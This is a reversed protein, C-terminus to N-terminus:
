PAEPGGWPNVGEGLVFGAGTIQALSVYATISYEYEASPLSCLNRIECPGNAPGPLLPFAGAGLTMPSSGIFTETNVESGTITIVQLVYIENVGDGLNNSVGGTTDNIMWPVCGDIKYTNFENNSGSVAGTGNVVGAWGFFHGEDIQNNGPGFVMTYLAPNTTTFEVKYGIAYVGSSHLVQAGQDDVVHALINQANFLRNKARLRLPNVPDLGYYFADVGVVGEFAPATPDINTAVAWMYPTPEPDIVPPIDPSGDCMMSTHQVSYVGSPNSVWLSIYRCGATYQGLDFPGQGNIMAEVTYGVDPSDVHLHVLKCDAEPFADITINFTLDM